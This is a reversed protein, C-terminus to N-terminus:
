SSTAVVRNRGGRKARYLARDAARLVSGPDPRRPGSFAVGISISIKVRRGENMKKKGRRPRRTPRSTSRVVFGREFVNSRMAELVETAATREAGPLIVAFEEGGYRFVDSRADVKAMEAAVMRLAEDGRIHGWRDNFAKFRDIDAMAIAFRGRLRRLRDDFARRNPLGTLRDHFALRHSEEVMAVVLIAQAASLALSRLIPDQPGLAVVAFAVALWPLVAEMPGRKWWVAGLAVVGAVVYAAAATWGDAVPIVGPWETVVSRGAMLLPLSAVALVLHLLVPWRSPKRDPVLALVIIHAAIVIATSVVPVELRHLSVVLVTAVVARHRGLRLALLVVPVALMEPLVDLVGDIASPVGLLWAATAAAAFALAVGFTLSGGRDM